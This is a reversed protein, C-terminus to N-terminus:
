EAKASPPLASAIAPWQAARAFALPRSLSLSFLRTLAAEHETGALNWNPLMQDPDAPDLYRGNKRIEYHLHPGTSMGTSGVLGVEQGREVRAGVQIGAGFASLHAYGTTVGGGHDVVVLNGYGGNRGAHVVTGDAVTIVPTGSPAAFDVGLHQGRKRFSRVVMRPKGGATKPRALVRRKFTVTAAGVGRSISRYNVPAQWLLREHDGGRASVFGGPADARDLWIASDVAQGTEDVVEVALLHAAEGEGDLVIRVWTSDDMALQRGMQRVLLSVDRQWRAPVHDLAEGARAATASVWVERQGTPTDDLHHWNIAPAASLDLRSVLQVRRPAGPEQATAAPVFVMSEIRNAPSVVAAFPVCHVAGAEPAADLPAAVAVSEQAGAAEQGLGVRLWEGSVADLCGHALFAKPFAPVAAAGVAVNKAAAPWKSTAKAESRSAKVTRAARKSAKGQMAAKAAGAYPKSVLAPGESPMSQAHVSQSAGLLSLGVCVAVAFACATWGM